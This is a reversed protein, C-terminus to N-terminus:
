ASMVSRSNKVNSATCGSGTMVATICCHRASRPLLVGDPAFGSSSSRSARCRSVPSCGAGHCGGSVPVVGRSRSVRVARIWICATGPASCADIMTTSSCFIRCYGSIKGNEIVVDQKVVEAVRLDRVTGAATEVASRAAAEWSEASVAIVDTVRYVSDAM